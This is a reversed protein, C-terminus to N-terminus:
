AHDRAAGFAQRIREALVGLASRKRRLSMRMSRLSKERWREDLRKDDQFADLISAPDNRMHRHAKRGVMDASLYDYLSQLVGTVHKGHGTKLQECLFERLVIPSAELQTLALDSSRELQVVNALRSQLCHFPYMIPIRLEAIGDPLRVEMTIQVAQKRLKAEDVGLVHWLFDIEIPHVDRFVTAPM